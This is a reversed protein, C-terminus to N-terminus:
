LVHYSARLVHVTRVLGVRVSEPQMSPSARPLSATPSRASRFRSVLGLQARKVASCPLQWRLRQDGETPQHFVFRDARGREPLRLLAPGSRYGIVRAHLDVWYGLVAESQAVAEAPTSGHRVLYDRIGPM